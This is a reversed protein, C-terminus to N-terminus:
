SSFYWYMSFDVSGALVGVGDSLTVYMGEAQVDYCHIAGVVLSDTFDLVEAASQIRTNGFFVTVTWINNNAIESADGFFFCARRYETINAPAQVTGSGFLFEVTAKPGGGFETFGSNDVSLTNPIDVGGGSVTTETSNGGGNKQALALKGVGIAAVMVLEWIM